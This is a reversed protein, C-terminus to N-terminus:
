VRMSRQRLAFGSAGLVVAFAGLVALLLGNGSEGQFASGVGTDSPTITGDGGVSAVIEGCAVYVGIEEASLHINVAHPSALLEALEVEVATEGSNESVGADDVDALPYIPNPDLDACTGEHIHAPHDGTVADGTLALSVNTTGDGNDVLNATGTVGSENLENLNITVNTPGPAPAETPVPEPEPAVTPPPTSLIEGCAVYVGIEEASLHINIAYEGATLEALGGDVEVAENDSLGDADVDALPYIPNPDLDDCTGEHIHAPHDGTVADGILEVFVAVTGDGNDSVFASGSVGSGNLENLTVELEEDQAAAPAAFALAGIGLMVVLTALLRGVGGVMAHKHM